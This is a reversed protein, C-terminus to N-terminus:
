QNIDKLYGKYEKNFNKLYKEKGDVIADVLQAIWSEHSMACNELDLEYYHNFKETLEKKEKEIDPNEMQRNTKTSM